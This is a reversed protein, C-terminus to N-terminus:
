DKGEFKKFAVHLIQLKYKIFTIFGKVLPSLMKTTHANIHFIIIFLFCIIVVQLRSLLIHHIYPM